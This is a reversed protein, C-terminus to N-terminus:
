QKWEMKGSYRTNIWFAPPVGTTTLDLSSLKWISIFLKISAIVGLVLATRILEGLLGEPTIIDSSLILDSQLTSSSFWIFITM